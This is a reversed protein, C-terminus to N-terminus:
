RKLINWKKGKLIFCAIHRGLGKGQSKDETAL